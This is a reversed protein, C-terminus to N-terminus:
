IMKLLDANTIVGVVRGNKSILVANCDSMMSTVSSMSTNETVLPFSDEMINSIQTDKLEDMTKGTRLLDFINKESLSGVSIDGSLVPLQSFGTTRMLEIASNVKESSQIAIVNKSAMDAARVYKMSQQRMRDLTNFLAVVTDYSASISGREIKAITSQSIGSERALDTQTMDLNKRLKKIHAVPPFIM